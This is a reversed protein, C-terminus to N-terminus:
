PRNKGPVVINHHAPAFLVDPGPERRRGSLDHLPLDQLSAFKLCDILFGINSVVLSLFPAPAVRSREM